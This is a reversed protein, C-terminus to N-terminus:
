GTVPLKNLYNHTKIYPNGRGLAFLKCITKRLLLLLELLKQLPNKCGKSDPLFYRGAQSDFQRPNPVASISGPDMQKQLFLKTLKIVM